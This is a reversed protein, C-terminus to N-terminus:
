YASERPEVAGGLFCINPFWWDGRCYKRAEAAPTSVLDGTADKEVVEKCFRAATAGDWPPIPTTCHRCNHCQKKM